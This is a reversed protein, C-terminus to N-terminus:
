RTQALKLLLKGPCVFPFFIDCVNPYSKDLDMHMRTKYSRTCFSPIMECFLENYNEQALVSQFICFITTLSMSQQKKSSSAFKKANFIRQRVQESPLVVNFRMYTLTSDDAQALRHMNLFTADCPM